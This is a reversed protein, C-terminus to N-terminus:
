FDLAFHSSLYFGKLKRVHILSELVQQFLRKFGMARQMETNKQIMKRKSFLWLLFKLDM